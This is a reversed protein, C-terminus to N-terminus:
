SDLGLFHAFSNGFNQVKESFFKVPWGFATQDNIIHLFKEPYPRTDSKKSCPLSGGPEM